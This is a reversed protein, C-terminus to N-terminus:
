EYAYFYQKRDITVSNPLLDSRYTWEMSRVVSSGIYEEYILLNGNDDYEWRKIQSVQADNENLMFASVPRNNETFIVNRQTFLLQDEPLQINSFAAKIEATSADMHIYLDISYVNKGIKTIVLEPHEFSGYVFTTDYRNANKKRLVTYCDGSLSASAELKRSIGFHKDFHIDLQKMEPKWRLSGKSWIAPTEDFKYDSYDLQLANKSFSYTKKELTDTPNNGGFAFLTIQRINLNKLTERNWCDPMRTPAEELFEALFPNIINETKPQYGDFTKQTAEPSSCGVLLLGGWIISWCIYKVSSM